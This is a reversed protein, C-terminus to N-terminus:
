PVMGLRFREPAAVSEKRCADSCFWWLRGDLRYFPTHEGQDVAMQCVPDVAM